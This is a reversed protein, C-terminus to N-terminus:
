APNSPAGGPIETIILSATKLVPARLRLAELALSCAREVADRPVAYSIVKITAVMGGRRMQQYQPVTAVTIMPDVRNVAEIADVDLEVVGPGSALVNVRGTFATSCTVGQAAADPVLASALAEAAQDEQLDDADLRAVIVERVDARRLADVDEATLIRGKRLRGAAGLSVSHALVTGAADEVLVPGFKM